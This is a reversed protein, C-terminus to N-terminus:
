VLFRFIFVLMWIVAVSSLDERPTKPGFNQCATL